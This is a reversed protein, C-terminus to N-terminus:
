GLNTSHRIYSAFDHADPISIGKAIAWGVTLALWHLEQDKDIEDSRDSCETKFLEAWRQKDAETSIRLALGAPQASVRKQWAPVGPWVLSLVCGKTPCEVPRHGTLPDIEHLIPAAGCFPCPLLSGQQM